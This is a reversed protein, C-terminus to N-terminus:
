SRSRQPIPQSGARPSRSQMSASLLGQLWTDHLEQSSAPENSRREEQFFTNRTSEHANSLSHFYGPNAPGIASYRYDHTM